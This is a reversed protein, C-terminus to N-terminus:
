IELEPLLDRLITKKGRETIVTTDNYVASAGTRANRVSFVPKGSPSLNVRITWDGATIAGDAAVTPVTGASEAGHTSIVTAIRCVRASPMTATFHWHNPYPNFNGKDDARLWNVAPYFFRDTTEVRPKGESYIYAQSVGAGNTARVRVCGDTAAVEMPQVVTHLLYNWEVDRDAELEDYILTLSADGLTVVHRRFTKLRNEDWGNAPTYEVESARGRELWLESVVPGYANSADGVVYGIQEGVYSRPIWGYGETGIRQGMGGVLITNHARSARHCYVAHRDVFSTHHGSSYFLSKGGYFTNFANQNATAHSTSGYPSSRFGIMANHATDDLDSDFMALGSAPFVYGRPLEKLGPRDAPLPLTCQLRFWAMDGPKNGFAKKLYDPERDLIRNRYDALYTNGTLRALADAYGVRSGSPTLINQHSSGNGTSKSFPPQAFIVYMANGRYWPDKFFDFGTLRSYFWPVEVLTRLNVHFYSDGNHWAGDANLGPFRALWLNYCYRTWEGAQPLEGLTAFAAFTFIRLNMQWTHNDAIHNELHNVFRDFFLKANREVAEKLTQKQADTLIDFFSDYGSSCLSLLTSQNFDGALNSDNSWSAMTIIRRVGEDAYRRDRTLLWARVLMECNEEERDIIRRSERTLLAGRQVANALSALKSTDVDAPTRMGTTLVRDAAAIYWEREPTGKSREILADWESRTTLIRPHEAPVRAAVADYPPPSFILADRAVTFELRRSWDTREGRVYGYQWYWKGAALPRGINFFPWPLTAETVNRRFTRDQSLRVKYAVKRAKNVSHDELGDLAAGRSDIWAPLPWMLAPPDLRVVAKDLPSPTARMEHMLTQATPRITANGAAAAATLAMACLTSLLKKM